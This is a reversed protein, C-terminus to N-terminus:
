VLCTQIFFVMTTTQKNDNVVSHFVIQHIALVMHGHDIVMIGQMAYTISKIFCLNLKQHGFVVFKENYLNQALMSLPWLWSDVITIGFVM